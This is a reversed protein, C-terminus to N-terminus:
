PICARWRDGSPPYRRADRCKIYRKEEVWMIQATDCPLCFVIAGPVSWGRCYLWVEQAGKEGRKRGKGNSIQYKIAFGCFVTKPESRIRQGQSLLRQLLGDLAHRSVDLEQLLLHVGELPLLFLPLLPM